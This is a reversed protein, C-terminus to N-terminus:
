HWSPIVKKDTFMAILHEISFSMILVGAIICPLYRYFESIHLTPIINPMVALGMKTAGWCLLAGFFVTLVGVLSGIWFQTKEPLLGILSELGIHGEDRVGASAGSMAVIIVLLLAVQESWIPSDNLVYRWFVSSVVVIVIGILGAVAIYMAWRSLRSNITTLWNM